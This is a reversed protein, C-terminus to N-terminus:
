REVVMWKAGAENILGSLLSSGIHSYKYKLLGSIFAISELVAVPIEIATKVLSSNWSITQNTDHIM